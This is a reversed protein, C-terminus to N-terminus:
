PECIALVKLNEDFGVLRIILLSYAVHANRSIMKNKMILLRLSYAVHANRSIVNNMMILLFYAVHSNRSIMKNMVLLKYAQLKKQQVSKDCIM